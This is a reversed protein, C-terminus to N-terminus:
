SRINHIAMAIGAISGGIALVDGATSLINSVRERGSSVNETMLSKYNRELNLRNVAQRIEEDSMSSLDMSSKLKEQKSKVYRDNINNSNRAIGATDNLVSRLNGYDKAVNSHIEQKAKRQGTEYKENESLKNYEKDNNNLSIVRGSNDFRVSNQLRRKGTDTLTGDENQYRRVGWRQGLIGHHYIENSHYIM